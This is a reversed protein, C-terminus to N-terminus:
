FLEVAASLVTVVTLMDVHMDVLPEAFVEDETKHYILKFLPGVFSRHKGHM